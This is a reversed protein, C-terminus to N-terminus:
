ILDRRIRMRRFILVIEWGFYTIIWRREDSCSWSCGWSCSSRCSVKVITYHMDGNSKKKLPLGLWTIQRSSMKMPSLNPIRVDHKSELNPGNNHSPPQPYPPHQLHPQVDVPPHARNKAGNEGNRPKTPTKPPPRERKKPEVVPVAELVPVPM